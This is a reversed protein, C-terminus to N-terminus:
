RTSAQDNNLKDVQSQSKNTLNPNKGSAWSVMGAALLGILTCVGSVWAPMSTLVGTQIGTVISGTLVIILGCINTLGDKWNM